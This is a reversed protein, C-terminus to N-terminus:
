SRQLVNRKNENQTKMDVWRLNNPEYIGDNDTRDLTMGPEKYNPLLIIYNYFAIFDNLWEDCLHIGRAGYWKYGPNKKNYCRSKIRYWIEYEKSKTLGHKYNPNGSGRRKGHYKM